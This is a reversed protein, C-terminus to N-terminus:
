FGGSGLFPWPLVVFDAFFYLFGFTHNRRCDTEIAFISKVSRFVIGHFCEESRGESESPAQHGTVAVAGWGPFCCGIPGGLFISLVLVNKANKPGHLVQARLPIM